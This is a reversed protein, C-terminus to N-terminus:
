GFQMVALCVLYVIVAILGLAASLALAALVDLAFLVLFWRSLSAM